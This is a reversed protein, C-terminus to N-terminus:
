SLLRPFHRVGGKKKKTSTAMSHIALSTWNVQIKKIICFLADLMLLTPEVRNKAQPILNTTLIKLVHTCAFPLEELRTIKCLFWFISSEGLERVKRCHSHCVKSECFLYVSSYRGKWVQSQGLISCARVQLTRGSKSELYSVLGNFSLCSDIIQCNISNFYKVPKETFMRQDIIM